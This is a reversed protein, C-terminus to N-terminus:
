DLVNYIERCELSNAFELEVKLGNIQEVFTSCTRPVFSLDLDRYLYAAHIYM